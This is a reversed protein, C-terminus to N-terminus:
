VYTNVLGRKWGAGMGIPAATAPEAAASLASISAAARQRPAAFQGSNGGSAGSNVSSQSLTLGAGTFLDHLQPMASEIAQRVALHPSIFQANVQGDNLQLHVELPGLQPPNLHLTALQQRANVAVLMQQGLEQGWPAAGVPLHLAATAGSAPAASPPLAPAGPMLAVQMGSPTSTPAVGADGAHRSTADGAQPTSGDGLPHLALAADAPKGGVGAAGAFAGQTGQSRVGPREPVSGHQSVPLRSPAIQAGGSLPLTDISTPAAAPGPGAAAVRDAALPLVKGSAGAADAVQASPLVGGSASRDATNAISGRGKGDVTPAAVASSPVMAALAIAPPMQGQAAQPTIPETPKADGKSADRSKLKGDPTQGQASAAQGEGPGNGKTQEAMATPTPSGSGEDTGSAKASQAQKLTAAFAAGGTVAPEQVSAGSPTSASSASPSLALITTM